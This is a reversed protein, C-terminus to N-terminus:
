SVRGGYREKNMTDSGHHSFGASRFVFSFVLTSLLFLHCRNGTSLLFVHSRNVLQGGIFVWSSHNCLHLEISVVKIFSSLCHSCHQSDLLLISEDVSGYQFWILLTMLKFVPSRRTRHHSQPDEIGYLCLHSSSQGVFFIWCFQPLLNLIPKGLSVTRTDLFDFRVKRIKSLAPRTHDIVISLQLNQPIIQHIVFWRNRALTSM